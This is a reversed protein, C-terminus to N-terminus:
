VMSQASVERHSTQRIRRESKPIRNGKGRFILMPKVRPVGDAFVTLQVTCQRKDMGPAASATWVEKVGQSNYTKGDNLVFPLPTQDMNAIDKDSFVGRHRQRSIEEHFSTISERLESPAQQATHTRAWLAIKHRRQFRWFCHDSFM